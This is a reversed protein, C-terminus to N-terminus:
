NCRTNLIHKFLQLFIDLLDQLILHIAPVDSVDRSMVKEAYITKNQGFHFYNPM